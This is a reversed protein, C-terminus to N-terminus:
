QGLREGVPTDEDGLIVVDTRQDVAVAAAMGSHDEDVVQAIRGRLCRQERADHLFMCRLESAAVKQTDVCAPAHPKPFALAGLPLM